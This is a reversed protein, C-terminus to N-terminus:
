LKDIIELYEHVTSSMVYYTSAKLLIDSKEFSEDVNIDDSKVM